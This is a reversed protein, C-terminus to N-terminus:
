RRDKLEKQIALKLAKKQDGSLDTMEDKDYLM